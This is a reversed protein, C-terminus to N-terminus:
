RGIHRGVVRNRAAQHGTIPVQTHLSQADVADLNQDAAATSRASRQALDGLAALANQAFSPPQAASGFLRAGFFRGRESRRPAREDRSSPYPDMTRPRISRCQWKTAAMSSPAGWVSVLRAMSR